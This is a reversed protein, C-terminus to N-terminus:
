PEHLREKCCIAFRSTIQRPSLTLSACPALRIQRLGSMSQLSRDILRSASTTEREAMFTSSSMTATLVPIFKRRPHAASRAAHSPICNARM